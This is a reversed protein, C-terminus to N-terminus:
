NRFYFFNYEMHDIGCPEDHVIQKHMSEKATKKNRKTEQCLSFELLFVVTSAGVSLFYSLM